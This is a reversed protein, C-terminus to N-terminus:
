DASAQISQPCPGSIQVAQPWGTVLTDKRDQAKRAEAQGPPPAPDQTSDWACQAGLGSSNSDHEQGRLGRWTSGRGSRMRLLEWPWAAKQVSGRGSASGLQTWPWAAGEWHLWQM